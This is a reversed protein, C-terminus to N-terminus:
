HKDLGLIGDSPALHLPLRKGCCFPNHRTSRGASPRLYASLTTYIFNRISHQIDRRDMSVARIHTAIRSHNSYRGVMTYNRSFALVLSRTNKLSIMPPDFGVLQQHQGVPWRQLREIDMGLACLV